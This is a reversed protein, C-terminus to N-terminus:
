ENGLKKIYVEGSNQTIRSLNNLTAIQYPSGSTGDGSAPPTLAQQGGINNKLNIL